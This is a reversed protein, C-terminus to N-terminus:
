CIAYQKLWPQPDPKKELTPDPYKKVTLDPQSKKKKFIQDLYPGVPDFVTGQDIEIIYRNYPSKYRFIFKIPDFNSPIRIWNKKSPTPDAVRAEVCLLMQLVRSHFKTQVLTSLHIFPM